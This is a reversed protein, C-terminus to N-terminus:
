GPTGSQKQLYDARVCELQWASQCIIHFHFTQVSGSIPQEVELEMESPQIPKRCLSCHEGTGHGGWMRAPATCPLEERAIRERALLRLENELKTLPMSPRTAEKGLDGKRSLMRKHTAIEWPRATPEPITFDPDSASM